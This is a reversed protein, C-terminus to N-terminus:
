QVPNLINLIFDTHSLRDWRVKTNRFRVIACEAGYGPDGKSFTGTRFPVVAENGSVGDIRVNRDSRCYEASVCSPSNRSTQLEKVIYDDDAGRVERCEIFISDGERLYYCNTWFDYFSDGEEELVELIREDIWASRYWTKGSERGTVSFLFGPYGHNMCEQAEKLSIEKQIVIDPLYRYTWTGTFRVDSDKVTKEDTDWKLVWEGKEYGAEWEIYTTGDPVNDKRRVIDGPYYLADDKVDYPEYGYLLNEPLAKWDTGSVYEYRARYVKLVKDTVPNSIYEAGDGFIVNAKNKIESGSSSDDKVRCVIELTIKEGKYNSLSELWSGNMRFSVTRASEDYSLKGNEEMRRSVSGRVSASVYELSDPLRDTITFEPYMTMTDKFFTGLSQTISYKIESGPEVIDETDRTKVPDNMMAFQSYLEFRTSCDGEYFIASFVGNETPAYIGAKLLEDTGTVPDKGTLAYVRDDDFALQNDIYKYYIGEYGSVSEWGERVSSDTYQIGRITQFFPLNVIEGTDHYRVTVTYEIKKAARYGCGDEVAAGFRLGNNEDGLLFIGMYGDDDEGDASGTRESVNIRSIHIDVDLKRGNIAGTERFRIDLFDELTWSENESVVPICLIRCGDHGTKVKGRVGTWEASYNSVSLKLMDNESVTVATNKTTYKEAAYVDQSSSCYAILICLFIFTGALVRGAATYQKGTM